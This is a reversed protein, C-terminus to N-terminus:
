GKIAERYVDCVAKHGFNDNVTLMNDGYLYHSANNIKRFAYNRDLNSSGLLFFAKHLAGISCFKVAERSQPRVYNGREDMAYVGICRNEEKEILSFALSLINNVAVEHIYASM